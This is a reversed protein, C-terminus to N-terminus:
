PIEEAPKSPSPAAPSQPTASPQSPSAPHANPASVVFPNDPDIGLQRAEWELQRLRVVRGLVQLKIEDAMFQPAYVRMLDSTSIKASWGLVKVMSLLLERRKAERLSWGAPNNLNSDNVYAIFQSWIERVDRNDIFVADIANLVELAEPAFNNHRLGLLESFLKIKAARRDARRQLWGNIWLAGIPALVIAITTAVLKLIAIHDATTM